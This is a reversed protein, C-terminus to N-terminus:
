LARHSRTAAQWTRASGTVVQPSKRRGMENGWVTALAPTSIGVLIFGGARGTSRIEEEPESTSEVV